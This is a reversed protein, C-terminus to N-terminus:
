GFEDCFIVDARQHDVHFVGGEVLTEGLRQRLMQFRGTVGSLSSFASFRTRATRDSISVHSRWLIKMSLLRILCESRFPSKGKSSQNQVM